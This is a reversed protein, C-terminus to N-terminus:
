RRRGSVMAAIACVIAGASYGLSLWPGLAKATFQGAVVAGLAGCLLLLSAAFLGV